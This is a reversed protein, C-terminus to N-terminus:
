AAQGRARLMGRIRDVDTGTVGRTVSLTLVYAALGVTIVVSRPWMADLLLITGAMAAAAVVAPALAGGLPSIGAKARAARYRLGAQVCAGIATAAAAGVFGFPPILAVLALLYLGFATALARLDHAQQHRAQLVCAMTIDVSAIVPVVALWALAAAAPVFREGFLLRLAPEALTIVAVSVPLGVTVWARCLHRAVQDLAPGSRASLRAVGPFVVVILITPVMMGAEYLKYPASYLGVEELDAMQSLVVFDMRSVAATLALLGLYVPSTALLARMGSRDARSRRILRGLSGRLYLGMTLLRGALLAVCLATLGAGMWVLVCWAVTRVLMELGNVAAIVSMRERAMLVTEAVGAVASPLLSASVLWLGAHMTAPYALMGAAGLLVGLLLAVALALVVLNGTVSRLRAPHQAADRIVPVHLGLLPLQYLLFFIALVTTFEGLDETGWEHALYVFFLFSAAATGLRMAAFAGFNGLARRADISM